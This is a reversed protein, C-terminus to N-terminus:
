YAGKETFSGYAEEADIQKTEEENFYAGDIVDYADELSYNQTRLWDHHENSGWDIIRKSNIKRACDLCVVQEVDRLDAYADIYDFYNLCESCLIKKM